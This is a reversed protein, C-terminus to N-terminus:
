SRGSIPLQRRSDCYRRPHGSVAGGSIPGYSLQSLAQIANLLDPPEIGSPEVLKERKIERDAIRVAHDQGPDARGAAARWSPARRSARRPGACRKRSVACRKRSVACRKRSAACRKARRSRSGSKRPSRGSRSSASAASSRPSSRSRHCPVHRPVNYVVAKAKVGRWQEAPRGTIINVYDRTEKPLESRQELWDAVRKPGANYAAAVLGLNNFRARLARLLKGSAPLADRADFADDLGMPRRRRAHVARHGHRRRSQDRRSRFQERALDPQHLLRAAAREGARGQGPHHLDRSQVSGARQIEALAARARELSTPPRTRRARRGGTRRRSRDAGEVADLESLDLRRHRDSDTQYITTEVRSSAISAPASSGFLVCSALLCSLAFEMRM